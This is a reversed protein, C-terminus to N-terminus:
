FFDCGGVDFGEFDWGAGSDSDNKGSCIKKDGAIWRPHGEASGVHAGSDSIADQDFRSKWTDLYRGVGYMLFLGGIFIGPGPFEFGSAIAAIVLGSLILCFAQAM